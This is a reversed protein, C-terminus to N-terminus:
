IDCTKGGEHKWCWVVDAPSVLVKQAVTAPVVRVPKPLAHSIALLTFSSIAFVVIAGSVLRYVLSM